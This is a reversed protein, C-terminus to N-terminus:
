ISGSNLQDVINDIQRNSLGTLRAVQEWNNDEDLKVISKDHNSVKYKM